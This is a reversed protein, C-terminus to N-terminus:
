QDGDLPVKEKAEVGDTFKFLKQLDPTLPGHVFHRQYFFPLPYLGRPLHRSSEAREEERGAEAGGLSVESEMLISPASWPLLISPCFSHHNLAYCIDKM